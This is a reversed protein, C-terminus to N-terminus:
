WVKFQYLQSLLLSGPPISFHGCWRVLVVCTLRIDCEAPLFPALEFTKQEVDLFILIEGDLQLLGM